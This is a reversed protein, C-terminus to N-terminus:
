RGRVRFVAADQGAWCCPAAEDARQSSPRRLVIEPVEARRVDSSSRADLVLDLPNTPRADGAENISVLNAGFDVDLSMRKLKDAAMPALELLHTVRDAVNRSKAPMATMAAQHMPHHALRAALVRLVGVVLAAEM